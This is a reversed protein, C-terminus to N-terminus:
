NLDFIIKMNQIQNNSLVNKYISVAGLPCLAVCVLCWLSLMKEELFRKLNPASTIWYLPSIIPVWVTNLFIIQTVEPM